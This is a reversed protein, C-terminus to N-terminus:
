GNPAKQKRRWGAAGGVAAVAAASGIVIWPLPSGGESKAIVFPRGFPGTPLLARGASFRACPECQTLTVYRGPPLDPVVFRLSGDGDQDLNLRGVRVLRPDRASAIAGAEAAPALYVQLRASRPV